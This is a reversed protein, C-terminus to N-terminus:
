LVAPDLLVPIENQTIKHKDYYRSPSNLPKMSAELSYMSKM